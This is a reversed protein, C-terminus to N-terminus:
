GFGGFVERHSRADGGGEGLVGGCFGGAAGGWGGRGGERRGGAARGARRRWLGERGPGTGFLVM